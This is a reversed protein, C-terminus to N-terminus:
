VKFRSIESIIDYFNEANEDTWQIPDDEIKYDLTPQVEPEPEEGSDTIQQLHRMALSIEIKPSGTAKTTVVPSPVGQDSWGIANKAALRFHYSKLPELGGLLYFEHDINRAQTKWELDDALKYQLSYCIVPSNGDYRPQKWTLLVETDSIQTAEPSDPEDPTMGFLIRARTITQGIKNRAAVKYMGLDFGLAPCLKYHSRGQEDM